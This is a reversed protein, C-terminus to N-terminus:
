FDSYYDLLVTVTGGALAAKKSLCLSSTGASSKGFTNNGKYEISDGPNIAENNPELDFEKVWHGFLRITGKRRIYTGSTATGKPRPKDSGVWEPESILQGLLEDSAGAKEVLFEKSTNLKVYDGKKMPNTFFWAEDKGFDGIVEGTSLNGEELEFSVDIFYPNYNRKVVM